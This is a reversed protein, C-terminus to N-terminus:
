SLFLEWTFLSIFRGPLWQKQAEVKYCPNLLLEIFYIEYNNDVASYKSCVVEERCIGKEKHIFIM